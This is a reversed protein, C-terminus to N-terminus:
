SEPAGHGELNPVDGLHETIARRRRPLSVEDPEAKPGLDGLQASM